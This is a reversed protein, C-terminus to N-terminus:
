SKKGFRVNHHTALHKEIIRDVFHECDFENLQQDAKPNQLSYGKPHDNQGKDLNKDIGSTTTQKQLKSNIKSFAPNVALNSHM